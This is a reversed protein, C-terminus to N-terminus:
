FDAAGRHLRRSQELAEQTELSFRTAPCAMLRRIGIEDGSIICYGYDEKDIRSLADDIHKINQRARRKSLADMRRQTDAISQDLMDAFREESDVPRGSAAAEQQLMETRYRQLLNRFFEKQRENMYPEEERPVYSLDANM